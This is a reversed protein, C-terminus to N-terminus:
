GIRDGFQVGFYFEFVVERLWVLYIKRWNTAPLFRFLLKRTEYKCSDDEELFVKSLCIGGVIAIFQFM